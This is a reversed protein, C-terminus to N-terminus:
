NEPISDLFDTLLDNLLAKAKEDALEGTKNFKSKIGSLLAKAKPAISAGITELVLELEKFAMQGSSSAVVFACPKEAFLMTSVQWELANKLSGPMSFVYEPTCILIGDAAEIKHRFRKIEDPVPDKDLDPNFHPLLAISELFDMEYDSPLQEELYQLIKENSSNSRTSGSIALIRKKKM